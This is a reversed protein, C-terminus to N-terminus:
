SLSGVELSSVSILPSSRPPTTLPCLPPKFLAALQGASRARPGPGAGREAAGASQQKYSFRGRGGRASAGPAQLKVRTVSLTAFTPLFLNRCTEFRATCLPARPGRGLASGVEPPRPPQPEAAFRAGRVPRVRPVTLAGRPLLRRAPRKLGAHRRGEGRQGAAAPRTRGPGRARGARSPQAGAKLEAGTGRPAFVPCRAWVVLLRLEARQARGGSAAPPACGSRDRERRLPRPLGHGELWM